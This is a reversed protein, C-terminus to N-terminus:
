AKRQYIKREENTAFSKGLVAQVRRLLRRGNKSKAKETFYHGYKLMERKKVEQELQGALDSASVEHLDEIEKPHLRCILSIHSM